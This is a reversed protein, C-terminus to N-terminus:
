FRAELMCFMHGYDNSSLGILPRGDVAAARIQDANVLEELRFHQSHYWVYARYSPGTREEYTVALCHGYRNSDASLASIMIRGQMSELWQNVQEEMSSHRSNFFVKIM